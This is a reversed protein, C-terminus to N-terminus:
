CSGISMLGRYLFCVISSELLALDNFTLRSICVYGHILTAMVYDYSLLRSLRIKPSKLMLESVFM